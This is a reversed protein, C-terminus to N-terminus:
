IKNDAMQFILNAIRESTKGDRKYLHDYIFNKRKESLIDKTSQDFLTRKITPLIDEPSYCGLVAGSKVYPYPEFGSFNVSVVPRDLFIAEMGVTSYFIIVVDIIVLLEYLYIDTVVIENKCKIDKIVRNTLQVSVEKGSGERLKVVLQTKPLQLVAKFIDRTYKYAEMESFIRNQILRQDIYLVTSKHQLLGLKQMINKKNINLNCLRDYRPSGTVVIKSADVNEAILLDKTYNGWVAIKTTGGHGYKEQNTAPFLKNRFKRGLLNLSTRLRGSFTWSFNLDYSTAITGEQVLLTPINRNFAEEIFIKNLIMTDHGLVILDPKYNNLLEKIETRCISSKKKLNSYHLLRSIININDSLLVYQWNYVMQIIQFSDDSGNFATIGQHQPHIDVIQILLNNEIKLLEDAVPRFMESQPVHVPIFMIKKM